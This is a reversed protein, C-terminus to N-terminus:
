TAISSGPEQLLKLITFKDKIKSLKVAIPPNTHAGSTSSHTADVRRPLRHVNVFDMRDSESQPFKLDKILFSTVIGESEDPNESNSNMKLGHFLVSFEKSRLESLIDSKRKEEKFSAMEERLKTLDTEL